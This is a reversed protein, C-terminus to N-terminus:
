RWAPVHREILWDQTIHIHTREDVTERQLGERRMRIFIEDSPIYLEAWNFIHIMSQTISSARSIDNIFVDFISMQFLADELADGSFMESISGGIQALVIYPFEAGAPAMTRFLRGGTLTYADTEGTFKAYRKYIAQYLNTLDAAM